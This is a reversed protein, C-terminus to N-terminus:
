GTQALAPHAEIYAAARNLMDREGQYSLKRAADGLDIWLARKVEIRMEEVV